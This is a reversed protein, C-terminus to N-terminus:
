VIADIIGHRSSFFSM